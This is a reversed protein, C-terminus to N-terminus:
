ASISLVFAIFLMSVLFMRFLYSLNESIRIKEDDIVTEKQQEKNYLTMDYQMM